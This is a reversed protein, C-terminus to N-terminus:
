VGHGEGNKRHVLKCFCISEEQLIRDRSVTEKQKFLNFYQKLLHVHALEKGYLMSKAQEYAGSIDAVVYIDALNQISEMEVGSPVVFITVVLLERVWEKQKETLAEVGGDEFCFIVAGFKDKEEEVKQTAVEMDRTERIRCTLIGEQLRCM